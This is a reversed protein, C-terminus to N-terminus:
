SQELFIRITQHFVALIFILLTMVLHFKDCYTEHPYTQVGYPEPCVQALIPSALCSLALTLFVFMKVQIPINEEEVVKNREIRRDLRCCCNTDVILSTSSTQSRIVPILDSTAAAWPVRICLRELISKRACVLRMMNSRAHMIWWTDTQNWNLWIM